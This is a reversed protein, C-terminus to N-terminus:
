RDRYQDDTDREFTQAKVISVHDADLLEKYRRTLENRQMIPPEFSGDEREKHHTTIEITHIMTIEKM